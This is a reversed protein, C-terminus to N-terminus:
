KANKLINIADQDGRLFYDATNGLEKTKDYAQGGLAQAAAKIEAAKDAIYSGGAKGAGVVADKADAIDGMLGRSLVEQKATAVDEPSMMHHLGLGAAGLGLAGLGLKTGTTLNGEEDTFVNATKSMQEMIMRAVEDGYRHGLYASLGLAGAGAAGVGAKGLANLHTGGKDTFADKIDSAQKEMTYGLKFYYDTFSM